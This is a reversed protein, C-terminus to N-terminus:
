EVELVVGGLYSYLLTRMQHRVLLTGGGGSVLNLPQAM